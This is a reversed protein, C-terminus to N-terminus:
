EKRILFHAMFGNQGIGTKPLIIKRWSKSSPRFPQLDDETLTSLLEKILPNM